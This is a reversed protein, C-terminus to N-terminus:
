RCQNYVFQTRQDQRRRRDLGNGWHTHNADSGFGPFDYISTTLTEGPAIADGIDAVQIQIDPGYLHAYIDRYTGAAGADVDIRVSGNDSTSVDAILGGRSANIQRENAFDVGDHYYLAGSGNPSDLPNGYNHLINHSGDDVPWDIRPSNTNSPGVWVSDDGAVGLARVQYEWMRDSTATTDEYSTVGAGVIAAPVLPSYAVDEKRGENFKLAPKTAPITM